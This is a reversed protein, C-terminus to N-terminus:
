ALRKSIEKHRFTRQGVNGTSQKMMLMFEADFSANSYQIAFETLSKKTLDINIHISDHDFKSYPIGYQRDYISLFLSYFMALSSFAKQIEPEEMLIGIISMTSNFRSSVESKHPFSDEYAKYLKELNSNKETSIGNIIANIIQSVLKADNMRAISSASIIKFQVWFTNYESALEYILTKLEGTYVSNLKEQPNLPASYSNLRSFISIIDADSAGRISIFSVEFDELLVQEEYPLNSFSSGYFDEDFINKSLSYKDTYFEIITSIRQQGDIIEKRRKGNEDVYDRLYIPPIPFNNLITDILATKATAPWETRRRQYKPQISLEGSDLLRKIDHISYMRQSLQIKSM